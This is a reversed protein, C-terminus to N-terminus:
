LGTFGSVIKLIRLSYWTGSPLLDSGRVQRPNRKRTPSPRILNRNNRSERPSRRVRASFHSLGLSLRPCRSFPSQRLDKGPIRIRAYNLPLISAEWAPRRRNSDSRGSKSLRQCTKDAARKKQGCMTTVFIQRRDDASMSFCSSNDQKAWEQRSKNLGLRPGGCAIRHDASRM